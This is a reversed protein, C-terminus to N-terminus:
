VAPEYYVNLHYEELIELAVRVDDEGHHYEFLDSLEQNTHQDLHLAADRLTEFYMKGPAAMEFEQVTTYCAGFGFTLAICM